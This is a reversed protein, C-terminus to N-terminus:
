TLFSCGWSTSRNDSGINLMKIIFPIQRKKNQQNAELIIENKLYEARACGRDRSQPSLYHGTWKKQKQEVGYYHQQYSGAGKQHLDHQFTKVASL